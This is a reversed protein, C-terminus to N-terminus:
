QVDIISETSQSLAANSKKLHKIKWNHAISNNVMLHKLIKHSRSKNMIVSYKIHLCNFKFLLTLLFQKWSWDMFSSTLRKTRKILTLNSKVSPKLTTHIGDVMKVTKRSETLNLEISLVIHKNSYKVLIRNTM